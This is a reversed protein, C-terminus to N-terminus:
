ARMAGCAETPGYETSMFLTVTSSWAFVERETISAEVDIPRLTRM